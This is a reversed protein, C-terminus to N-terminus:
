GRASAAGGARRYISGDYYRLPDTLTKKPLAYASRLALVADLAAPLMAGHPEIGNKPDTLSVFIPTAEDISVSSRAALVAIADARNAPAYLWATAALVARVLREATAGNAALWPRRAVLCSGQYAGIVDSAAGLLTFGAAKAAVNYPPSLLAASATGARLADFRQKTAGVALRRVDDVAVGNQALMRYLVFAYGTTLADVAVTTGRLAAISGIEPRAWLSLLGGDGGMFAVFDAPNPLLAEGQGEDYAIINDLATAAVDFDGASLHQFQYVSGPTQTLTVALNERAFFGRDAAVYLPLAGASLFGILRVPTPEASAARPLLAAAATAAVFARRTTM